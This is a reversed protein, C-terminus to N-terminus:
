NVPTYLFAPVKEYTRMNPAYTGIERKDRLSVQQGVSETAVFDRRVGVSSQAVSLSRQLHETLDHAVLWQGRCSGLRHLIM